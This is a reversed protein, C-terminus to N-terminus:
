NLAEVILKEAVSSGLAVRTGANGVVVGRGRHNLVNVVTGVRLGLSLMRRQLRQDGCIETIRGKHGQELNLLNTTETVASM